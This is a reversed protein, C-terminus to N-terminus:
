AQQAAELEKAELQKRNYRKSTKKLMKLFKNRAWSFGLSGILFTLIFATGRGLIGPYSANLATATATAAGIMLSTWLFMVVVGYAILGLKKQWTMFFPLPRGKLTQVFAQIAQQILSTPLRFYLTFVRYGEGWVPISLAIFGFLGSHAFFLATSAIKTGSNYTLYWFLMGLIFFGLRDLLPCAVSWLMGERSLTRGGHRDIYFRPVMGFRLQLGFEDVTGGFGTIATGQIIRSAINITMLHFILALFFDEATYSYTLTGWMKEQNTFYLFLAAPTAPIMCLVLFRFFWAHPVFVKALGNYIPRPNFWYWRFARPKVHPKSKKSAVVEEEDEDEFLDDVDWLPNTDLGELGAIGQRKCPELLEAIKRSFEELDKLSIHLDFREQLSAQIEALTTSGDMAQCLFYEQESFEFTQQTVLDKVLYIRLQSRRNTIPTVVLDQRFCTLGPTYM